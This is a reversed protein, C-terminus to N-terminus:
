GLDREDSKLTRLLDQSRNEKVQAPSLLAVDYGGLELRALLTQHYHGAEELGFRIWAAERDARARRVAATLAEFGRDNLAFTFPAVVVQGWFDCVVAMATHKGVDIPMALLRDRDLERIRRVFAEQLRGGIYGM